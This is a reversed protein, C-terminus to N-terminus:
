GRQRIPDIGVPEVGTKDIGAKLQQRSAPSAAGDLGSAIINVHGEGEFVEVTVARVKFTIQPAVRADAFLLKLCAAGQDGISAQKILLPPQNRFDDAKF